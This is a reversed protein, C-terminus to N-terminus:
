LDQWCVQELVANWLTMAEVPCGSATAHTKGGGGSVELPQLPVAGEGHGAGYAAPFDRSQVWLLEEWVKKMPWPTQMAMKRVYEM